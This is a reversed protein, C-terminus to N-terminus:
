KTFSQTLSAQRREERMCSGIAGRMSERVDLHRKLQKLVPGTVVLPRAGHGEWALPVFDPFLAVIQGGAEFNHRNGTDLFSETPLGNALIVDHSPLEIHWYAIHDCEVQAISHGNILYKVPILVDDACVAHDPSLWLDRSPSRTAFAGARIRVPWVANPRSHRRCDITRRGIWIVPAADGDLTRVMTGERLNEVAIAGDITAILTGTAFCSIPTQLGTLDPVGTAPYGPLSLWQPDSSDIPLMYAWHTVSDAATGSTMQMLFSATSGTGSLAGDGITITQTTPDSPNAAGLPSFSFKVSGDQTVSGVLLMYSWGFGINTASFGTIYGADYNDIHWVTQDTVTVIRPQSTNIALLAPLYTTPVYWYTDDLWDGATSGSM